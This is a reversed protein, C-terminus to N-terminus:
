KANIDANLQTMIASTGEYSSAIEGDVVLVLIPLEEEMVELITSTDQNFKQNPSPFATTGDINCTDALCMKNVRDTIDFKYLKNAKTKNDRYFTLYMFVNNDFDKMEETGKFDYILVYYRSEKQTYLEQGQLSEVKSYSQIDKKQSVRIIFFVILTVVIAGMISWFVIAKPSISSKKNSKIKANM